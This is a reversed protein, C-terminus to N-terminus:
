KLKRNFGFWQKWWQMEEYGGFGMKENWEKLSCSTIGEQLSWLSRALCLRFCRIQVLPYESWTGSIALWCSRSAWTKLPICHPGLLHYIVEGYEYRWLSMLNLHLLLKYYICIIDGRVLSWERWNCSGDDLGICIPTRRKERLKWGIPKMYIFCEGPWNDNNENEKLKWGKKQTSINM